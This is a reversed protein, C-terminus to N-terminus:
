NNLLRLKPPLAFENWVLVLALFPFQDESSAFTEGGSDETLPDSVDKLDLSGLPLEEKTEGGYSGPAM